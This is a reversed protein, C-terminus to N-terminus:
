KRLRNGYIVQTYRLEAKSIDFMIFFTSFFMAFKTVLIGLPRVKMFCVPKACEDVLNQLSPVTKQRQLQTVRPLRPLETKSKQKKM